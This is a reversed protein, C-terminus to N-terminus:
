SFPLVVLCSVSLLVVEFFIFFALFFCFFISFISLIAAGTRGLLRGFLLLSFSSFLPLFIALLYM